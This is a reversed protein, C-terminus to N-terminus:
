TLTRGYITPADLLQHSNPKAKRKNLRATVSLRHVVANIQRILGDLDGLTAALSAAFARVAGAAKRLSRDPRLWCATVLVWHQIVLGIMTALVECLVRTPRRSRSQGWRGGGSKWLQFVCEIQWRCRALVSIAAADAREQPINTVFINWDCLALRAATPQRGKDRAKEIM